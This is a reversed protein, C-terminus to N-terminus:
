SMSSGGEGSVSTVMSCDACVSESIYEMRQDLTM